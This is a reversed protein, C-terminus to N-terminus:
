SLYIQNYKPPSRKPIRCSRAQGQQTPPIRRSATRPLKIRKVERSSRWMEGAGVGVVCKKKGIKEDDRKKEEV